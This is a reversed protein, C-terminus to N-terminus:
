EFSSLIIELCLYQKWLGGIDRRMLTWAYVAPSLSYVISDHVGYNHGKIIQLTGLWM